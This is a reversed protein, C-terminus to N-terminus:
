SEPNEEPERTTKNSAPHTETASPFRQDPPFSPKKTQMGRMVRLVLVLFTIVFLVLYVRTLLPDVVAELQAVNLLGTALLFFVVSYRGAFLSIWLITLVENVPPPLVQNEGPDPRELM